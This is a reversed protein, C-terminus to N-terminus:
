ATSVPNGIGCINIVLSNGRDGVGERDRCVDHSNWDGSLFSRQLSIRHPTHETLTCQHRLRRLSPAYSYASLFHLYLLSSHRPRQTRESTGTGVLLRALRGAPRENLVPCHCPLANCVAPKPSFATDCHVKM